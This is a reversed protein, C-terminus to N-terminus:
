YSYHTSYTDTTSPITVCNDKTISTFTTRCLPNYPGPRYTQLKRHSKGTRDSDVGKDEREHRNMVSNPRGRATLTGSDVSLRTVQRRYVKLLRTVFTKYILFNLTKHLEYTRKNIVYLHIDKVGQYQETYPCMTSNWTKSVKFVRPSLNRGPSPVLTPILFVLPVPVSLCISPHECKLIPHLVLYSTFLTYSHKCM